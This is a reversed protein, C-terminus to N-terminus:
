FLGPNISDIGKQYFFRDKPHALLDNLFSPKENLVITSSCPQQKLQKKNLNM